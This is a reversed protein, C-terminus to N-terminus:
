LLGTLSGTTTFVHQWATSHGSGTTTVTGGSFLQIASTYVIVVIGPAGAGAAATQQSYNGGGGGGYHPAYQPQGNGYPYGASEGGQGDNGTGYTAGGASSNYSSGGGGGGWGMNSGSFTGGSSSLDVSIGTGPTPGSTAGGAGGGGGGYSEHPGTAGDFGAPFEWYPPFYAIGNLHSGGAYDQGAGSGGGGSGGNSGAGGAAGGGGGQAVIVYESYPPNILWIGSDGGNGGAGGGSAGAAGSAGVYVTYTSTSHLTFEVTGNPWTNSSATTTAVAGNGAWGGAGGGGAGESENFPSSAGGGGGGVVVFSFQTFLVASSVGLQSYLSSMSWSAGSSIGALERVPSDNMSILGSGTSNYGVTTFGDDYLIKEASAYYNNGYTVGGLSIPFGTPVFQNYWVTPTLTGLRIANQIVSFLVDGKPSGLGTCADWGTTALYGTRAQTYSWGTSAPDSQNWQNNGSTIDNFAQPNQYLVNNLFGLTTCGIQMCCRAILAAWLPAAASAGGTSPTYAQITWYTYSGAPINNYLPYGPIGYGYTPDNFDLTISSSGGTFGMVVASNGSPVHNIFASDSVYVYVYSINYLNQTSSRTPAIPINISFNDTLSKGTPPFTIPASTATFIADYTYTYGTYSDGNAAVDPVARGTPVTAAGSTNTNWTQFTIGANTQYAPAAYVQSIGGGSAGGADGSQNSWNYYWNNWVTESTISNTATVTYLSTGGVSLVYSSSAPYETAVISLGNNLSGADGSSVVVTIGLLVASQLATEVTPYSADVGGYSISLVTLYTGYLSEGAIAQNITEAFNSTYAPDGNIYMQINANPAASGVVAVDLMLEASTPTTRDFTASFGASGIIQFGINPNSLMGYFTQFTTNLNVINWASAFEVIGVTVKSATTNAPFNYASAVYSAPRIEKSGPAVNPTAIPNNNSNDSSTTVPTPTLSHAKYRKFEHSLDLGLIESVVESLAQPVTLSGDYTYYSTATTQVLHITTSFASNIQAITGSAKVFSCTSNSKLLTLGSSLVFNEAIAMDEPSSAYELSFQEITMTPYNALNGACIQDAYEQLSVGSTRGIPKTLHITFYMNGSEDAPIVSQINNGDVSPLTLITNPLVTPTLNM